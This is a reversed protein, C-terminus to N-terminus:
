RNAAPRSTAPLPGEIDIRGDRAAVIRYTRDPVMLTSPAIARARRVGHRSAEVPDTAMAWFGAWLGLELDSVPTTVRYPAPVSDGLDCLSAGSVPAEDEGFVRRFLILSRGRLPDGPDPGNESFTLVLGEVYVQKGLATILRPPAEPGGDDAIERFALRTVTRGGADTEQGLVTVEAIRRDTMKAALAGRLRRIERSEHRASVFWVSLAAVIGLLLLLNVARAASARRM